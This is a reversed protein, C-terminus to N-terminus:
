EEGLLSQFRAATVRGPGPACSALGPSALNLHDHKEFVNEFISIPSNAARPWERAHCRGTARSGISM